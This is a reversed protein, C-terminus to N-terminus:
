KKFMDKQENDSNKNEKPYKVTTNFSTFNIDFYRIIRM